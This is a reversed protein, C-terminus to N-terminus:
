KHKKYFLLMKQLIEQPYLIEDYHMLTNKKVNVRGVPVEYIPVKRKIAEALVNTDYDFSDGPVHLLWSLESKPFSRLGTQTDLLYKHFLFQFFTSALKNGIVSAISLDKSYFNRVGLVIGDSFVEGYKLIRKVNRISHQGHAGVTLVIKANKLNQIIYRFGTKLAQGKGKNDDHTLVICNPIAELKHFIAQYKEESGDNVIIVKGVNLSLLQEIYQVISALPNLTPIVVVTQEM